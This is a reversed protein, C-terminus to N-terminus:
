TPTLLVKGFNKRDQIYAHAEPAREFPFTQDVVPSLKGDRTMQLVDDACERLRDMEGWLHGLNTGVVARNADMLAFPNFRPTQLMGKVAAIPNMKKGPAFSSAGFCFLRGLPALCKYSKKFSTGGVADIAIDVGRGGTLQKVRARFDETRYDICHEAGMEALRAHKGKSATAIVHAERSQCLQLAALGVGGGGSHVLVTEGPRLGGMYILMLYATLYNVPIAAGQEVTINPPLPFVHAAPAVITDSYGGFRCLVIVTDGAKFETVGDGVADVEGAAEYGVVCPLPPSDPYMGMRAMIDAFNIGCARARVRVEGPGPTPDPAERVELVEPLGKRSIWVQRM